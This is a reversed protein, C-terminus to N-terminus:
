VTTGRGQCATCVAAGMFAIDDGSLGALRDAFYRLPSSGLPGQGFIPERPNQEFIGHKFQFVDDGNELPRQNSPRDHGVVDSSGWVVFIKKLDTM